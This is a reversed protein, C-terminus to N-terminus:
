LIFSDATFAQTEGFDAIGILGLSVDATGDVYDFAEIQYEGLNSSETMVIYNDGAVPAAGFVDSGVLVAEADYSSFDIMDADTYDITTTTVVINAGVFSADTVDAIDGLTSSTYTVTNTDATHTDTWGTADASAFSAAINEGTEGALVSVSVDGFSYTAAQTADGFTVTFSEATALDAPVLAAGQQTVDAVIGVGSGDYTIPTAGADSITVDAIVAATDQTFVITGATTGASATWVGGAAGNYAGILATAITAADDGATPTYSFGTTGFYAATFAIPGPTDGATGTLTLSFVEPAAPVEPAADTGQTVEVTATDIPASTNTVTDAATFNVISDTGNGFDNYRITENSMSGTSLVIVDNGTGGTHISDTTHESNTGDVLNVWGDRAFSDTAYDGQVGFDAIETAFVNLLSSDTSGPLAYWSTLNAVDGATLSTPATIGIELDAAVMAGDILSTVVLTNGPGDQAVLLKSLEADNNIALKLAQNIDADTAVGKISALDASADFGLYNVTVTANFLQYSENTDSQLNDLQYRVPAFDEQVNFAWVAKDGTNDSYITDNGTGGDIMYDGSGPTWITDDNAGGDIRLNANLKQNDYWNAFIPESDIQGFSADALVSVGKIDEVVAVTITDNGEGGAVTAAMNFDERTVAGMFADNSASIAINFNDNGTGGTYEFSVNDAGAAAPAQDQLDLYKPTVEDTLAAFLTLDGKFASADFVRVDKLAEANDLSPIATLDGNTNSNGITLDAFTGTQDADTTVYVARLNNNTSHLGSLSSSKSEDGFVTVDFENIGSTTGDVTTNVAGWVNDETKNMSGIILEGGDGALGVKELDVNIALVTDTEPPTGDAIEYRNNNPVLANLARVVELDTAVVTLDNEVGDTLGDVTLRVGIGERQIMTVPNVDTHFIQGEQAEVSQLAVNDPNDAKLQVLADEVATLFQEYTTIESGTGESDENLYPILSFTDGNLTFNCERFFVGDLPKDGNTADYNDENMALFDVMPSTRTGEPLLYDQDFYVTFDSENWRSDSNGTHDMSITMDALNRANGAADQTTFNQITLNADSHSSVIDTVGLMNKANVYVETSLDPGIIQSIGSNVAEINVVEIDTTRPQIPMSGSIFSGGQYVGATLQANLTDVIGSNGDLNDGSGLTNVQAGLSNQVVDANFTDDGSTGVRTDQGVTLMFDTLVTLDVEDAAQLTELDMTTNATNISYEYATAVSANYATAAAGYTPDDTMGSFLTLANSIEVGYNDPNADMKGVLYATAETAAAGTLGLNAVVTDALEASDDSVTDAFWNEFEAMSTAEVDAVFANMYTNGCAANYLAKAMRSIEVETISPLILAM